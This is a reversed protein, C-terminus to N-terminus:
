AADRSETAITLKPTRSHRRGIAIWAVILTAFSGLALSIDV